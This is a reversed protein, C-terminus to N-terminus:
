GFSATGVKYAIQDKFFSGQMIGKLVSNCVLLTKSLFFGVLKM